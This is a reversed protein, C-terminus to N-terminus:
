CPSGGWQVRYTVQFTVQRPPAPESPPPNARNGLNVGQGGMGGSALRM